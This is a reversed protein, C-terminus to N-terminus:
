PFLLVSRKFSRQHQGTAGTFALTLTIFLTSADTGDVEEIRLEQVTFQAKDTLSQWGYGACDLTMPNHQLQQDTVRLGASGGSHLSFVFCHADLAHLNGAVADSVHDVVLNSVAQGNLLFQANSVARRKAGQQWVLLQQATMVVLIGLSAAILVDILSSGGHRRFAPSTPTHRSFRKRM